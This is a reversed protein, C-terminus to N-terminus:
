PFTLEWLDDLADDGIGGFLLVRDSAADFVM